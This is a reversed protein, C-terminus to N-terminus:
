HTRFFINSAEMGYFNDVELDGGHVSYGARSPSTEGSSKGSKSPDPARGGYAKRSGLLSARQRRQQQSPWGPYFSKLAFYIAFGASLSQRDYLVACSLDFIAGQILLFASQHPEAGRGPHGSRLPGFLAPQM